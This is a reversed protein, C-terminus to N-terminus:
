LGRDVVAATHMYTGGGQGREHRSLLFFPAFIFVGSLALLGVGAVRLYGNNGRELFFTSILVLLAAISALWAFARPRGEKSELRDVARAEASKGAPQRRANEVGSM